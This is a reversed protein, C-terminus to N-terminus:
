KIYRKITTILDEVSFPKYLVDKAGKRITQEALEKAFTGTIIIVPVNPKIKKMMPFAEVGGLKPLKIDLLVLDVRNHKFIDIADVGNHAILVDYGEDSLIDTLEEVIALEDDVILITNSKKM